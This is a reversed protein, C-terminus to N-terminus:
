CSTRQHPRVPRRPRDVRPVERHDLGRLGAPSDDLLYGITQPRTGQIAEYGGGATGARRAWPTPPAAVEGSPPPVNMLNVHLGLTREPSLEAM